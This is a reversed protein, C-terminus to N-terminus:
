THTTNRYSGSRGGRSLLPGPNRWTSSAFLGAGRQATFSRATFWERFQRHSVPGYTAAFRRAVERLAERPEWEPQPGLWDGPHVFTVKPGLRASASCARRLPTPSTTAGAPRSSRVRSAGVRESVADALEERTLRKGALAAGIAAVVAEVEEVDDAVYDAEGVVARRAATWLGLEDAPHLHLTGRLTWTKM